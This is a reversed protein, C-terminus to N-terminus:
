SGEHYAKSFLGLLKQDMLSEAFLSRCDQIVFDSCGNELPSNTLYESESISLSGALLCSLNRSLVPTTTSSFTLESPCILTINSRWWTLIILTLWRSKSYFNLTFIQIGFFLFSLVSFLAVSSRSSLTLTRNLSSFFIENVLVRNANIAMVSITIAQQLNNIIKQNTALMIKIFM